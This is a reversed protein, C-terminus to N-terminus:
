TGPEEDGQAPVETLAPDERTVVARESRLLVPERFTEIRTRTRIRLEEKLFLQKTLILREELVPVVLLGDEERVSPPADVPRDIPVREVVVEDQWLAAEALEERTEISTRVVVRGREVARKELQLQEEALPLPDDAKPEVM